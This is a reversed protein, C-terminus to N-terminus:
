LKEEVFIDNEFLYNLAFKAKNLDKLKLGNKM